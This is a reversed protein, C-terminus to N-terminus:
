EVAVAAMRSRRLAAIHLSKPGLAKLEAEVSPASPQPQGLPPRVAHASDGPVSSNSNCQQMTPDAISASETAPFTSKEESLPSMVRAAPSSTQAAHSSTVYEGLPSRVANHPAKRLSGTDSHGPLPSKPLTLPSNVATVLGSVYADAIAEGTGTGSSPSRTELLAALAGTVAPSSPGDTCLEAHDLRLITNGMMIKDGPQIQHSAMLVANFLLLSNVPTTVLPIFPSACSRVELVHSNVAQQSVIRAM